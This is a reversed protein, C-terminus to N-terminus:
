LQWFKQMDYLKSRVSLQFRNFLIIQQVVIARVLSNLSQFIQGEDSKEGHEYFLQLLYDLHFYYITFIKFKVQARSDTVSTTKTAPASTTRREM